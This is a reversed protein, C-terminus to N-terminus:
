YSPNVGFGRVIQVTGEVPAIISGIRKLMTRLLGDRGPWVNPLIYNDIAVPAMILDQAGEMSSQIAPFTIYMLDTDQNNWPTHPALMPDPLLEYSTQIGNGANSPMTGIIKESSNFADSLVTLPNKPNYVKSQMTWKLVKYATPSVNIRVSVPLYNVNELMDGLMTNLAEVADAGKTTNTPDNWIYDLPADTWAVEPTLQRLGDFESGVDGFYILANHLQEVMLRAYRERDGIM